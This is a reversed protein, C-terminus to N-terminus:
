ADPVSAQEFCRVADRIIEPQQGAKRYLLNVCEYTPPTIERIVQTEANASRRAMNDCLITVGSGVSVFNELFERERLISRVKPEFDNRRCLEVFLRHSLMFESPLTVSRGKLSRVDVEEEQALPDSKPMVVCLPEKMINIRGFMDDAAATSERVIALDYERKLLKEKLQTLDGQITGVTCNPHLASFSRLADQIVGYPSILGFIGIILREGLNSDKKLLNAECEEMTAVIKEAYVLFKQGFQTLETRRTTRLFLPQGLEKELARIHRSLTAETTYLADAARTYNRIRELTVFERLYQLEM